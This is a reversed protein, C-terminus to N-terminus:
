RRRLVVVAATGDGVLVGAAGRAVDRPGLGVVSGDGAHVSATGALAVVFIEAGVGAPPLPHEEGPALTHCDLMADYRDRRTMVNFDVTPAPAVCTVAAEGRFVFPVFPVLERPAGEVDLLLREGDVLVLVRDVGPFASFTTEGSVAAFSLRWEFGGADDPAVAVEWTTGQGNRWPMERHADAACIEMGQNCAQEPGRAPRGTTSGERM